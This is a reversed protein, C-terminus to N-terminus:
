LIAFNIYYLLLFNSQEEYHRQQNAVLWQNRRDLACAIALTNAIQQIQSQEYEQWDRDDRGTM